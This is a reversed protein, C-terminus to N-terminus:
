ESGQWKEWKTIEDLAYPTGIQLLAEKASRQLLDYDAYLAKVLYPIASSNGIQGLARAASARVNNPGSELLTLIIPLADSASLDGLARVIMGQVTPDPERELASVLGTAVDPNGIKGLLEAAVGRVHADDYEMASVLSAIAPQDGINALAYAADIQTHRDGDRLLGSLIERAKVGGLRGLAIIIAKKTSDSDTSLYAEALDDVVSQDGIGGLKFAAPASIAEDTSSLQTLLESIDAM